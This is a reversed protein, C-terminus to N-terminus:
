LMIDEPEQNTTVPTHIKGLQSELLDQLTIQVQYDTKDEMDATCPKTLNATSLSCSNVYECDRGFSVCSEGRMPYIETAEYMKIMEIDLLLERIWLARQLYTKTFPIPFYEGATTSYVLYLVKYSSLEPYLHDLVTLNNTDILNLLERLEIYASEISGNISVIYTPDTITNTTNILQVQLKDTPDFDSNENFTNTDFRKAFGQGAIVKYVFIRLETPTSLNNIEYEIIYKLRSSSVESTEITQKIAQYTTPFKKLNLRGMKKALQPYELLSKKNKGDKSLLFGGRLQVGNESFIIDSGYNGRLGTDREDIITGRSASNNFIGKTTRIDKIGKVIVGGYTTGKHQTAFTQNQMDHPSTFPGSVYEVNQFENETDYELLKVSQQIQPIVNIHLPLFPAAIFPDLEDWEDYQVHNELESTYVGYPRFRIRGIGKPDINNVCIGVDIIKM